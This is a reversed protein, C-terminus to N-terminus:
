LWMAYSARPHDANVAFSTSQRAKSPSRPNSGTIRIEIPAIYPPGQGLQNCLIMAKPFMAELEAQKKRLFMTMDTGPVCDVIAEAYQPANERSPVVNYYFMLASKGLFWKVDEVETDTLLEDRILKAYRETEEISSTPPMEVKLQFQNRDSPPFFQEPLELALIFGCIPIILAILVGVGPNRLAM